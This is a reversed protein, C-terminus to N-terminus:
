IFLFNMKGKGESCEVSCYAGNILTFRPSVHGIDANFVIPIDPFVQKLAEQYTIDTFGGPFLVRGVIVGKVYKFWNANKMQLLTLYFDESKLAFNDFYWIIGDDKYKDIFRETYDFETGIIYRLSDICGGLLRGKISFDGNLAEWYVKGDYNGSDKIVEYSSFSNQEILNGKMIEIARLNAENIEDFSCANFGYITAKDLMTTIVYLLSTPDSNGMFWKNCKSILSFDIYPLVEYLFDGGSACMILEIDDNLVLSELEKAKSIGKGFGDSTDYVDDTEVINFGYKELNKISKKYDDVYNGIGSSLATVGIRNNVLKVPYNM